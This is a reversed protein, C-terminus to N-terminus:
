VSSKRPVELLCAQQFFYYFMGANGILSESVIQKEAKGAFGGSKAVLTLLMKRSCSNVKM